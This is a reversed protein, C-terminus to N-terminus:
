GVTLLKSAIALTTRRKSVARLIFIHRSTPFTFRHFLLHGIGSFAFRGAGWIGLLHHHTFVLPPQSGLLASRGFTFPM